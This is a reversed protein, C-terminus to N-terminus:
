VGSPFGQLEDGHAHAVIDAFFDELYGQVLPADDVLSRQHLILEVATTQDDVAWTYASGRLLEIVTSGETKQWRTGIESLAGEEDDLSGHRWTVDYEVTIVDEVVNHLVYSHEYEPEVDWTVTFDDIKRRDANVRPTTLADYVGAIPRRVYGKGHCWSYGGEAESEGVVVSLTEPFDGKPFAARNDELPELGPPFPVKPDACGILALALAAPGPSPRRAPPCRRPAM